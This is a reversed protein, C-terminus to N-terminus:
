SDGIRVSAHMLTGDPLPVRIVEEADFTQKVFDILQAAGEVQLYLTISHFGEPIPSVPPKEEAPAGELRKKMEDFSIDEKHTAVLWQYGFPDVLRGSRDGYFQDKVPWLVKAGAAVAQEAVADVDEVYLHITIPSGGMSEASLVGYEPYEDAIFLKSGAIEIEAHGIRGAPDVPDTFRMLERAGFAQKYFEIAKAAGKFCLYPTVGLMRPAAKQTSSMKARRELDAKLSLKFSEDPLDRLDLAVGSLMALRQDDAASPVDRGAIIAEVAEDLQDILSRKAM